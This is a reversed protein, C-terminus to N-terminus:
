PHARLQAVANAIDDAGLPAVGAVFTGADRVTAFTKAPYSARLLLTMGTVVGRVAAARFGSGEIVTASAILQRQISKVESTLRERVSAEPVTCDSGVVTLMALSAHARAVEALLQAVAEVDHDTAARDFIVIALPGLAAACFGADRRAGSLCEQLQASASTPSVALRL